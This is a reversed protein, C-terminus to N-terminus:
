AIEHLDKFVSWLMTVPACTMCNEVPVARRGLVKSMQGFTYKLIDRGITTGEAGGLGIVSQQAELICIMRLRRM